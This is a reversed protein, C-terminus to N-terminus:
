SHAKMSHLYHFSKVPADEEMHSSLEMITPMSSHGFRITVKDGGVYKVISSLFKAPFDARFSNGHRFSIPIKSLEQIGSHFELFGEKETDPLKEAKLSIRQTGELAMVVWELCQSLKNQDALIATSFVERDLLTLPPKKCSVKSLVLVSETVPDEVYLRTSDQFILFDTGSLKSCFSKIIPIDNSILSLDINIDNLFAVSGYYRANSVACKSDPYFHVQNIRMDEETKTEKVQASCSVQRLLSDFYSINFSYKDSSQPKAPIPPRRSTISRKKLTASRTEEANSAQVTLSKENVTITVDDLNSDFLATRDLTIYFDDSVYGSPLAGIPESVMEARVFRRKDSSFLVLRDGIFRLCVDNTQSKVVKVQAFCRKLGAPQFKFKPM